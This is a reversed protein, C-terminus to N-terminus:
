LDGMSDNRHTLFEAHIDPRAASILAQMPGALEPSTMSDILHSLIAAKDTDSLYFLADILADDLYQVRRRLFAQQSAPELDDFDLTEPPDLRYDGVFPGFAIRM